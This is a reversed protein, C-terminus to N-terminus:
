YQKKKLIQNEISKQRSKKRVAEMDIGRGDDEVEVVVHNRERRAILTIKGIESKGSAIREEPSEIGHDMANRILHVLPEGMRDLVTRDLGIESGIIKFKIKKGLEKSTDRVLRKFRHFIQEAPVLRAEMVDKQIESILKGSSELETELQKSGLEHAISSLRIRSVILEGVLDMLNDLRELDVRTSIIEVHHRERVANSGKPNQPDGEEIIEGSQDDSENNETINLNTREKDKEVASQGNPALRKSMPSLLVMIEGLLREGEPNEEGEISWEVLEKLLDVVRLLHDIESSEIKMEEKKCLDLINELAHSAEVVHDYGMAGSMGKMNHANRFIEELCAANNEKELDMIGEELVKLIENAESIFLAKYDNVKM